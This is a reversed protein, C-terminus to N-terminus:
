FSFCVDDEDSLEKIKRKGKSSRQPRVNEEEVMEDLDEEESLESESSLTSSKSESEDDSHHTLDSSGSDWNRDQKKPLPEASMDTDEVSNTVSDPISSAM